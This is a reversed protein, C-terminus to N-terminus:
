LIDYLDVAQMVAESLGDPRSNEGHYTGMAVLGASTADASIQDVRAGTGNAGMMTRPSVDRVHNKSGVHAHLLAGIGATWRGWRATDGSRKVTPGQPASNERDLDMSGSSYFRFRGRMCVIQDIVDSMVQHASHWRGRGAHASVGIEIPLEPRGPARHDSIEDSEPDFEDM